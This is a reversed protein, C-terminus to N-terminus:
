EEGKLEIGLAAALRRVDSRTKPRVGLQAGGRCRPTGGYFSWSSDPLMDIRYVDLESASHESHITGIRLSEWNNPEFGVSRLWGEDIAEDDEAPHEALYAVALEYPEMLGLTQELDREYCPSDGSKRIARLITEAAEKPTM